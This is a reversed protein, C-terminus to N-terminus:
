RFPGRVHLVTVTMESVNFLVNYRGIVLLRTEAKYRYPYPALPCGFPSTSLTESITDQISFFWKTAEEVGWKQCGWELSSEIDALARKSFVVDYKNM